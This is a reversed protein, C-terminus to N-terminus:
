PAWPDVNGSRHLGFGFGGRRVRSACALLWHSGGPAPAKTKRGERPKAHCLSERFAFGMVRCIGLQDVWCHGAQKGGRTSAQATGRARFAVPIRRSTGNKRSNSSTKCPSKVSTPVPYFRSTPMPFSRFCPLHSPQSQGIRLILFRLVHSANRCCYCYSTVLKQVQSFRGNNQQRKELAAQGNKAAPVM